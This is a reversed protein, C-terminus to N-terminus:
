RSSPGSRPEPRNVFAVRLDQAFAPVATAPDEEDEYEIAIWGRYGGEALIERVRQYDVPLPGDASRYHRKAHATVTLPVCATFEEYIDEAFNGFDLNIGLWSSGVAEILRLTQEATATLGHHNELAILIGHQRAFESCERLAEVTWEFADEARVGERVAGAFVRVIPAGLEVSHVVWKKTTKVHEARQGADPQAFDTGVATGSVTLGLRHAYKKLDFLLDRDTSRFYYSTLEIGDFGMEASRDLFQPLTMRGALLDQRFSYACCSLKLLNPGYREAL